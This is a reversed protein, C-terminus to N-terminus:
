PLVVLKRGEMRYHHIGNQELLQILESLGLKRSIRGGYDGAYDNLQYVIDIDYWRSVERMLSKIDMNNFKFFGSKWAMVKEIDATATTLTNSTAIAQEGPRLQQRRDGSAVIVGGSLLTTSHKEEDEYAMVDFDTGLVAVNMDPTAVTFAQGAVPAVEFYAEGRLEVKREGGSFSVPYRLSSAANLWVKSGDPLVLRYQGGRPTHISNYAVVGGKTGGEYVLRGNNNTVKVGYQQTLQGNGASDLVIREGGALTLVAKNGAPPIDNKVPQEVPKVPTVAVAPGNLKQRFLLVAGAILVIAAAAVAPWRSLRWKRRTQHFINQFAGETDYRANLRRLEGAIARQDKAGESIEMRRPNDRRWEDLDAREKDTLPQKDAEKHLLQGIYIANSINDSNSPVPITQTRVYFM